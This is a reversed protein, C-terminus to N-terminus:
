RHPSSTDLNIRFIYFNILLNNIREAIRNLKALFQPPWKTFTCDQFKEPFLKEIRDNKGNTKTIEDWRYIRLVDLWIHARFGDGFSIYNDPKHFDM